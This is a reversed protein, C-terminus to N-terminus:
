PTSGETKLLEMCVAAIHPWPSGPVSVTDRQDCFGSTQGFADAFGSHAGLCRVIERADEISLRITGDAGLMGRIAAITKPSSSSVGGFRLNWLVESGRDDDAVLVRMFADRARSVMPCCSPLWPGSVSIIDAWQEPSIRLNAFSSASASV